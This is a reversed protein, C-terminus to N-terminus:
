NLWANENMHTKNTTTINLLPIATLHLYINIVGKARRASFMGKM